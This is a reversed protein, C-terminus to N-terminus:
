RPTFSTMASGTKTVVRDIGTAHLKTRQNMNDNQGRFTIDQFSTATDGAVPFLILIEVIKVRISRRDDAAQYGRDSRDDATPLPKVPRRDSADRHGIVSLAALRDLKAEVVDLPRNSSAVIGHHLQSAM